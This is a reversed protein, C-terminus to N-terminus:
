QLLVTSREPRASIARERSQHILVHHFRVAAADKRNGPLRPAIKERVRLRFFTLWTCTTRVCWSNQFNLGPLGYILELLGKEMLM